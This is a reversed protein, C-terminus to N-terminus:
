AATCNKSMFVFFLFVVESNLSALDYVSSHISLCIQAEGTHTCLCSTLVGGHGGEAQVRLRIEAHVKQHVGQDQAERERQVRPGRPQQM